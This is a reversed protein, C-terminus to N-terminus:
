NWNPLKPSMAMPYTKLLDNDNLVFDQKEINYAEKKYASLIESGPVMANNIFDQEGWIYNAVLDKQQKQTDLVGWRTYVADTTSAFGSGYLKVKTGGINPGSM